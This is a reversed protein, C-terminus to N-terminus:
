HNKWPKNALVIIMIIIAIVILVIIALCLKSQFEACCMKDKLKRSTRQFLSASAELNESKDLLIDIKEDRDIVKQVARAAIDKNQNIQAHLVAFTPNNEYNVDNQFSQYKGSM